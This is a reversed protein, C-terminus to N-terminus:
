RSKESSIVENIQVAEGRGQGSLVHTYLIQLKKAGCFLIIYKLEAVNSRETPTVINCVSRGEKTFSDLAGHLAQTFASTDEDGQTWDKSAYTLKGGTFGVMGYSVMPETKSQVFWDDGSGQIKVLKYNEALRSILVDKSMGLELNEGIWVQDKPLIDRKVQSWASAVILIVFLVSASRM